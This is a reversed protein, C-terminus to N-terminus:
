KHCVACQNSAKRERHCQMCDEMKLHIDPLALPQTSGLIGQHCDDCKMKALTVHTAHSFSVHGPLRDVRLWPIEQKREAYLRVKPEDPHSGRVKGHCDMCDSVLPFQALRQEEAGPHCSICKMDAEMHRKHSFAMPQQVPVPKRCAPFGTVVIAVALVGVLGQFRDAGAGILKVNANV